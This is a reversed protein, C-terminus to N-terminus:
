ELIWRTVVVAGRREPTLEVGAGLQVRFRKVVQWHVQGVALASHRGDLGLAVNGEAGFTVAEDADLYLSPNLLVEQHAQGGVRARVGAMGLGSLRGARFGAVYLASLETHAEDFQHEAIAQLGHAFREDPGSLTWQVAAKLADVRRDVMPLELEVAFRDVIAWEIEPAWTTADFGGRRPRVVFLSNAEIEGARAGLGRVLDFVMPEPVHPASGPFLGPRRPDSEGPDVVGDRDADEVGDPVGDADTDRRLPLTGTEVELRDSVGDGDSDRGPAEAADDGPACEAEAVEPVRPPAGDARAV